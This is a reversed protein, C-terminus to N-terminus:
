ANLRRAVPPRRLESPTRLDGAEESVRCALASQRMCECAPSWLPSPTKTVGHLADLTIDHRKKCREALVGRAIKRGEWAGPKLNM